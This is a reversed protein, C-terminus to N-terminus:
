LNLKSFYLLLGVSVIVVATVVFAVVLMSFALVFDQMKQTFQWILEIACAFGNALLRASICRKWVEHGSTWFSIV